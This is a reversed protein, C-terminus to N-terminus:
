FDGLSKEDIWCHNCKNVVNHAYLYVDLIEWVLFKKVNVFILNKGSKFFFYPFVANKGSDICIKESGNIMSSESCFKFFLGDLWFM